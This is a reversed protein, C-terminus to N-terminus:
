GLLTGAFTAPKPQQKAAPKVAAVPASPKAPEPEPAADTKMRARIRREADTGSKAYASLECWPCCVSLGGGATGKVPIQEGCSLCLVTGVKAM